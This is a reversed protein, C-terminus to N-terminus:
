QARAKCLNLMHNILQRQCEVLNHGFCSNHYKQTGGFQRGGLSPKSPRLTSRKNKCALHLAFNVYVSSTPEWLFLSLCPDKIRTTGVQLARVLQQSEILRAASGDGGRAAASLSSRLQERDEQAVHHCTDLVLLLRTGQMISKNFWSAHFASKLIMELHNACLPARISLPPLPFTNEPICTLSM